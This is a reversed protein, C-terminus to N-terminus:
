IDNPFRDKALLKEGHEFRKNESLEEVKFSSRFETFSSYGIKRIFRMVSSSSTHSEGAIDRVRMYPIKKSNTAMFHYIARDTESLEDFNINGFFSM